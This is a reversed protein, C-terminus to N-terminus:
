EILSSGPRMGIAEFDIHLRQKRCAIDAVRDVVGVLRRAKEVVGNFCGDLCSRLICEDVLCRM